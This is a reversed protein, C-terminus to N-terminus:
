VLWLAGVAAETDTTSRDYVYRAEHPQRHYVTCIQGRDPDDADFAYCLLLALTRLLFVLPRDKQGGATKRRRGRRDGGGQWRGGARSRSRGVRSDRTATAPAARSHQRSRSEPTGALAGTRPGARGAAFPLCRRSRSGQHGPAAGAPARATQQWCGLIGPGFDRQAGPSAACLAPRRGEGERRASV